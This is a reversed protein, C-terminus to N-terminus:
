RDLRRRRTRDLGLGLFGASVLALGIPITVETTSSGTVAIATGVVQTPAAAALPVAPAAAPIVPEEPESVPRSSITVTTIEPGNVTARAICIVRQAGESATFEVPDAGRLTQLASSTDVSCTSADFEIREDPDDVAAVFSFSSGNAFVEDLLLLSGPLLSASDDSIDECISDLSGDATRQGILAGDQFLELSFDALTFDSDGEELILMACVPIPAADDNVFTCSTSLEFQDLEYTVSTGALAQDFGTQECSASTTVYGEVDRETITFTTGPAVYVVAGTQSADPDVVSAILEGDGDFVDFVFDSVGLTGANDNIVTKNITIPISFNLFDCAYHRDDLEDLPAPFAVTLEGFATTSECRASGVGARVGEGIIETVSYANAGPAVLFTALGAGQQDSTCTADDTAPTPVIPDGVVAGDVALQFAFDSLAYGADAVGAGLRKAVCVVVTDNTFTCVAGEDDASVGDLMATATALDVTATAGVCSLDVLGVPAGASTSSESITVAASPTVVYTSFAQDAATLDDPTCFDQELLQAAGGTVQVDFAFDTAVYGAALANTGVQKAVCLLAIDNVFECEARGDLVAATVSRSAVDGITETPETAEIGFAVCSVSTLGAVGTPASETATFTAGPPVLFGTTATGGFSHEECQDQSESAANGDVTVTFDFDSAQEGTLDTIAGNLFKTVCVIAVDNVLTCDVPEGSILDFSVTNGSLTTPVTVTAEVLFSCDASVLRAPSGDPLTEVVSISAGPAAYFGFGDYQSSCPEGEGRPAAAVGDLVVIGNVTVTFTGTGALDASVATRSTLKDVCVLVSQNNFECQIVSVQDPASIGTITRSALTADVLEFNDNGADCSAGVLGISPGPDREGLSFETGPPLAVGVVGTASGETEGCLEDASSPVLAIPDEGSVLLDFTFDSPDAIENAAPNLSKQVCVILADNTFNCDIAGVEGAGLTIGISGDSLNATGVSNFGGDLNDQSCTISTPQIPSTDSLGESITFTSGPAVLFQVAPVEACSPGPTEGTGGNLSFAFDTEVAGATQAGQGVTKVVCVSVSDNLFVCDVDGGDAPATATIAGNTVPQTSEDPFGCLGTVFGVLPADEASITERLLFQAGPAVNFATGECSQSETPQVPAMASQMSFPFDAATFGGIQFASGGISKVACITSTTNTYTCTISTSLGDAVTFTVTTGDIATTVAGSSPCSISTGYGPAATETVSYVGPTLDAFRIRDSFAEDDNDDLTFSSQEFGTTTFDFADGSSPVVDKVVTISVAFKIMQYQCSFGPGEEGEPITIQVSLDAVVVNDSATCSVSGGFGPPPTLDLGYTGPALDDFRFLQSNSLDFSTPNLGGSATISFVESEAGALGFLSVTIQGTGQDQAEADPLLVIGGFLLAGFISVLLLGRRYRGM